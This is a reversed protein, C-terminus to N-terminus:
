CALTIGLGDVDFSKAPPFYKNKSNVCDHLSTKLFHRDM